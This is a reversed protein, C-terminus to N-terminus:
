FVCSGLRLGWIGCCLVVVLLLWVHVSVANWFRQLKDYLFKQVIVFSPM